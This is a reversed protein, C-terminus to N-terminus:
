TVGAPRLYWLLTSQLPTWLVIFIVSLVASARLYTRQVTQSAGFAYSVVFPSAGHPVSNCNGLEALNDDFCLGLRFGSLGDQFDDLFLDRPLVVEVDDADIM